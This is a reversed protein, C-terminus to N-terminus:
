ATCQLCVFSLLGQGLWIIIKLQSFKEEAKHILLKEYLAAYTYFFGFVRVNDSKLPQPIQAPTECNALLLISRELM